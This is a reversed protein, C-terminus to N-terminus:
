PLPDHDEPSYLYQTAYLFLNTKSQYLKQYRDTDDGDQSGYGNTVVLAVLSSGIINNGHWIQFISYSRKLVIMQIVIDIRVVLRNQQGIAKIEGLIHAKRLKMFVIVPHSDVHM